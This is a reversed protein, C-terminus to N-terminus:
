GSNNGSTESDSKIIDTKAMIKIMQNSTVDHCSIKM